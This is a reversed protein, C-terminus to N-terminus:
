AEADLEPLQPLHRRLDEILLYFCPVLLLTIVTAFLIGFGLSLAMPILFRAQRSTEFIMPALGGFTTLTTLLIPRFRRVGAAVIAERPSTGQDRLRNAFDILVLSDNVVVGSLAVIGMMSMLSLNYGLLIHGLTAGVLGFPIALMVVMPQVYSRFPIALLFYICLLAGIFGYNLGSTSEALRAQRGQFSYSLGPFDRGLGPLISTNLEAIILSNQQPSEVNASVNLTRRADRRTITTYARGREVSAIERLPVFRGSPTRILLNEIDYEHRREDEPLQLRVSVENRGRQQRLAISGSFASRVQRAVDRSSLGLSQGAPTLSFDLQPKGSSTGDDLDSVEPFEALRAALTESARELTTIDRHSLEVTLSAGSGPGGRDSEFRLTELGAITGTAARWRSVLEKTSIPRIDPATLYATVRVSNEDTLSFVGTMLQQGGSKEVVETLADLLRTEAQKAKSLPSGVPLTASVVARDSEIRPFLERGIRGSLVYALVLTLVAFGIAVTLGRWRVCLTLLPRYRQEIFRSVGASFRQQRAHLRASFRYKPKLSTHAIHSPLILLSEVWSIVFVAVVVVPIARWIKGMIGPIFYLPMFAALNTLIAFTVPVAVERAGIVAARLRGDGKERYAYINEGVVIADDVVIGLSVIFAFMSVVNVSVDMPPLFLMGGLFSIPIGMTVWFALKLELFAGLLLLVLVLGYAANKLLLDRRQKYIDSRDRNIAWDIGDPLDRGIELMASHVAESVGLPTQDGVRMVELGISRQVDYSAFRYSAEFGEYVTALDALTVVSGRNTTIIPIQAFEGAWERRDSIRLLLDGGRTDLSGGPLEVSAASLREAIDELTLDYRRLQAQPVEVIIEFDRGGTIDIQTIGPAQLLRDRVQEVTERLATESAAGFIQLSLVQRRRAALSVQPQETDVPFTTIRDVQQRIETYIKQANADAHLEITVRGSGEAATSTLEKIGDLGRVAEEIALVVGREVEEPSAGPYAVSVSVVDLDFEPFVEKKITAATFLGGILLFLMLLNATVHNRAMWALPGQHWPSDYPNRSM